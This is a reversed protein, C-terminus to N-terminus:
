TRGSASSVGTRASSTPRACSERIRRGSMSKEGWAGYAELMEHAPDSGLPFALNYKAKFKDQARIPDASVGLIATAAKEFERLRNFDM